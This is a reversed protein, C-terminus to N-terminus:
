TIGLAEAVGALRATNELEAPAKNWVISRDQAHLSKTAVLLLQLAATDVSTVHEVDFVVENKGQLVKREVEPMLDAIAAVTFRSPFSIKGKRGSGKRVSM